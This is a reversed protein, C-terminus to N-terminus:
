LEIKDESAKWYFSISPKLFDELTMPIPPNVLTRHLGGLVNDDYDKLIDDEVQWSYCVPTSGTMLAFLNVSQGPYM